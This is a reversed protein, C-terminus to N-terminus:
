SNQWHHPQYAITVAHRRLIEQSRELKDGRMTPAMCPTDASLGLLPAQCLSVARGDANSM